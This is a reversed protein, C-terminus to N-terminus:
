ATKDRQSKQHEGHSFIGCKRRPRQRVTHNIDHKSRNRSNGIHQPQSKPHHFNRVITTATAMTIQTTNTGITCCADTSTLCELTPSMWNWSIDCSTVSSHRPHSRVTVLVQRDFVLISQVTGRDAVNGKRKQKDCHLLNEKESKSFNMSWWQCNTM